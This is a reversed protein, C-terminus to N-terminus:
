RCEEDETKGVTLSVNHFDNLEANQQRRRCIIEDVIEVGYVHWSHKTIFLSIACIGCHPRIIGELFYLILKLYGIKYIVKLLTQINVLIGNYYVGPTRRRYRV